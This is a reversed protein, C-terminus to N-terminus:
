AAAEHQAPSAAMNVIVCLLDAVNSQVASRNLIRKRRYTMPCMLAM